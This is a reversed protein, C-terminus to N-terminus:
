SQQGGGNLDNRNPNLLSYVATDTFVGKYYCNERFYGERIFGVKKLLSASALNAPDIQAEVSHLKLVNFAYELVASIAEHMIGKGQIVPELMYGIEARHNEKEIRWLGISGVHEMPADKLCICWTIGNNMELAELIIRIWNEAEELTKTLPRNIYRMVEENSRLQQVYPADFLSMKRLWLRETKLEPFPQFSIPLM